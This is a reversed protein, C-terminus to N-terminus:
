KTRGQTTIRVKYKNALVRVKDVCLPEKNRDYCIREVILIPFGTDVNLIQAESFDCAAAFITEDTSCIEIGYWEELYQYLGVFSDKTHELGPAFKEPIYNVMICVPVDDATQVRQVRIVQEGPALRLKKATEENPQIKDIYRSKTAVKYGRNILSETVSTVSNFSQPTKIDLLMTGRGQKIDVLGEEALLKMAKRVTTRSINHIRELEPESPLFDGPSYKGKEIDHKILQYLKSYEPQNMKNTREENNNVNYCLGDYFLLLYAM